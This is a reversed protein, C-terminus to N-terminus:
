LTEHFAPIETESLVTELETMSMEEPTKTTVPVVEQVQYEIHAQQYKWFFFALLVLIIIIFLTWLRNTKRKPNLFEHPFQNLTTTGLSTKDM